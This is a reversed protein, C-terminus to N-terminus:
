FSSGKFVMQISSAAKTLNKPQETLRKKQPFKEAKWSCMKIIPKPTPMPAIKRLKFGHTLSSDRAVDTKLKVSFFVADLFSRPM